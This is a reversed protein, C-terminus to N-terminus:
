YNHTETNTNEKFNAFTYEQWNRTNLKKLYAKHKVYIARNNNPSLTGKERLDYLIFSNNNSLRILYNVDLSEVNNINYRTIFADWNVTSLGILLVFAIQTNIRFLFLLNKIKLVKLFTTILGIFTLLLYIYVGLRKYTLGYATVYDNNKFAILIILAANLIIWVFALNKLTKNDKYFNINGRFFYLIIVIAIIISAILANIGNHVQSSLAVADYSSSASLAIIDTVLYFVILVNLLLMLTTGLQKEKKLKEESFSDTKLLTNGSKLDSQTAPEVQVPNIINSFLFYGLVSFLVWQINIFKFNIQSILANFVSNGNKYLLIFVIIFILPIGILKAWHLVDIDKKLKPTEEEKNFDLNRHFFGAVSTYIGNLWNVFISSKSETVNGVLTFFVVINTIFALFSHQFFVLAATLLYLITYAITTKNKFKNTNGIILIILTLLSFLSINLGINQGYFLTSFLFSSIIIITQKM